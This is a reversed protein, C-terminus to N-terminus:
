EDEVLRLRDFPRRVPAGRSMQTLAKEIAASNRGIWSYADEHSPNGAARIEEAVLAEPVLGVIAKGDSEFRVRYADQATDRGLVRM